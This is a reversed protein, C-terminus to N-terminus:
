VILAGDLSAYKSKWGQMFTPNMFYRQIMNCGSSIQRSASSLLISNCKACRGCNESWRSQGVSEWHKTLESPCSPLQRCHQTVIETLLVGFSYIILVLLALTWALRLLQLQGQLTSHVLPGVGLRMSCLEVFIRQANSTAWNGLFKM